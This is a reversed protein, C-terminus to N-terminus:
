DSCLSEEEDLVLQLGLLHTRAQWERSGNFPHGQSLLLLSLVEEVATAVVVALGFFKVLFVVSRKIKAGVARSEVAKM